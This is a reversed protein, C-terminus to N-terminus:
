EEPQESAGEEPQERAERIEQWRRLREQVIREYEEVIGELDDAKVKTAPYGRPRYTGVAVDNDRLKKIKSLYTRIFYGNQGERAWPHPLIFYEGMSALLVDDFRTLQGMRSGHIIRSIRDDDYGRLCEDLEDLNTFGLQLLLRASWNYSWKSMRRDPGFNRNLYARLSDGTIEVQDLEGLDVKKKAEKRLERDADEIAQFERDAIEILGALSAFRRRIPTPLVDAAKYQIDHEIEAWAHQLITRVQLEAILGVFQSYEPLSTRASNYRILYHFSQYGMRDPQTPSREIAEVVEFQESIIDEVKQLTSLFYTIVRIGAKDSIQTLPDEYRPSWPDDTSVRGAKREFSEPDKARFTISHVVLNDADICQRIISSISRAYDEYLGRISEYKLRAAQAAKKISDEDAKIASETAALADGDLEEQETNSGM